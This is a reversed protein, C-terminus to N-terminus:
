RCDLRSIKEYLADIRDLTAQFTAHQAPDAQKEKLGALLATLKEKMDNLQAKFLQMLHGETPIREQLAVRPGLAIGAAEFTAEHANDESQMGPLVVFREHDNLFELLFRRDLQTCAEDRLCFQYLQEFPALPSKSNELYNICLIEVQELQM